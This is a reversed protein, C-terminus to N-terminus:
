RRKTVIAARYLLGSTVIAVVVFLLQYWDITDGRSFRRGQIWCLWFAKFGTLICLGWMLWRVGRTIFVPFMVLFAAGVAYYVWWPIGFRFTRMRSEDLEMVAGVLYVLGYVAYAAAAQFKPARWRSPATEQHSV